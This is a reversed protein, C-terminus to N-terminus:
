HYSKAFQVALFWTYDQNQMAYLTKLPCSSQTSPRSTACPSSAHSSWSYVAPASPVSSSHSSSVSCFQSIKLTRTLCQTNMFPTCQSCTQLLVHSKANSLPILTPHPQTFSEPMCSSMNTSPCDAHGTKRNILATITSLKATAQMNVGAKKAARRCVWCVHVHLVEAPLQLHLNHKESWTLFWSQHATQGHNCSSVGKAGQLMLHRTCMGSCCAIAAPHSSPAM